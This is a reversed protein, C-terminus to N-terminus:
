FYVNCVMMQIAIIRPGISQLVFWFRLLRFYVIIITLAFFVRAIQFANLPLSYRLTFSIIFMLGITIDVGNWRGNSMYDDVTYVFARLKEHWRWISSDLTSIARLKIRCPWICSQVCSEPIRTQADAMNFLPGSGIMQLVQLM